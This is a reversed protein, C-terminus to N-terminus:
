SRRPRRASSRSRARSATADMARKVAIAAAVAATAMMNHGCGHGPAGAVVPDQKPVRGKQSLMPLADYEGLIGIVPKGSGYTAVFCTPM